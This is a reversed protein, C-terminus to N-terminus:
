SPVEFGSGPCGRGLFLLDHQGGLVRWGLCGTPLGDAGSRMIKLKFGGDREQSHVVFGRQELAKTRESLGRRLHAVAEAAAAYPNFDTPAVRPVRSPGPM